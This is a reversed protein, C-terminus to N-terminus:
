FPVYMHLHLYVQGDPSKNFMQSFPFGFAKKAPKKWRDM